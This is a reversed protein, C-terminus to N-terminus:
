KRVPAVSKPASSPLASQPAVSRPAVSKPAVSKPPVDPIAHWAKHLAKEDIMARLQKPLVEDLDPVASLVHMVADAAHHAAKLMSENKLVPDNSRQAEVLRHAAYAAYNVAFMAFSPPGSANLAYSGADFAATLLAEEDDFTQKRGEGYALTLDLIALAPPTLLQHAELARVCHVVARLAGAGLLRVAVWCMWQPQDMALWGSHMDPSKVQRMWEVAEDCAELAQMRHILSASSM